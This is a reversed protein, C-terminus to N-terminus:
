IMKALLGEVLESYINEAPNPYNEKQHKPNILVKSIIQIGASRKKV